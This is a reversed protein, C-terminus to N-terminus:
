VRAAWLNNGLQKHAEVQQWLRHEEPTFNMGESFKVVPVKNLFQQFTGTFAVGNCHALSDATESILQATASAPVRSNLSKALTQLASVLQNQNEM